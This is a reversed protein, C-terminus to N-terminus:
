ATATPIRIFCRTWWQSWDRTGVPHKPPFFVLSGAKLMHPLAGPYDEAKPKIEAFTVYGTASVFRRFDRNTVPTRDIWFADVSVRHAPAEEAYHRDSGMRFTGGPIFVMVGTKVDDPLWECHGLDARLM